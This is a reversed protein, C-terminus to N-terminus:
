NRSSPPAGSSRTAGGYTTSAVPARLSAVSAISPQAYSVLGTPGQPRGTVFGPASRHVTRTVHRSTAYGATTSGTQPAVPDGDDARFVGVAVSRPEPFTSTAPPVTVMVPSM